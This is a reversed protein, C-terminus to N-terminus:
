SSGSQERLIVQMTMAAAAQAVPACSGSGDSGKAEERIPRCQTEGFHQRFTDRLEKVLALLHKDDEEATIRGFLLGLAIVGGSLAGCLESRTSGVGGAFGDAAKVVIPNVQGFVREGVALAVAESCHYGQKMLQYAQQGVETIVESDKM